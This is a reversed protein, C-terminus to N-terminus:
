WTAKQARAHTPTDFAPIKYISINKGNSSAFEAKSQAARQRDRGHGNIPEKEGECVIFWGPHLLFGPWSITTGKNQSYSTNRFQLVGPGPSRQTDREGDPSWSKSGRGFTPGVLVSQPLPKCLSKFLASPLNLHNSENSPHAM